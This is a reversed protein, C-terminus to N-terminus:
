RANVGGEFRIQNKGYSFQRRFRTKLRIELQAPVQQTKGANYDKINQGLEWSVSLRDLAELCASEFGGEVLPKDIYPSAYAKAYVGRAIRVLVGDAVCENLVRSIQRSSGQGKLDSWLIVKGALSGIKKLLKDRFRNKYRIAM